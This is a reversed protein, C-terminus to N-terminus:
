LSQWQDYGRCGLEAEDVRRNDIVVYRYINRSGRYHVDGIVAQLLFNGINGIIHFKGGVGKRRGERERRM